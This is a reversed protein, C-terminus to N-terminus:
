QNLQAKIELARDLNGTGKLSELEAQLDEKSSPPTGVKHLGKFTDNRIKEANSQWTTALTKLHDPDTASELIEKPVDPYEKQAEAIARDKMLEAVTGTLQEVQDSGAQHNKDRQSILTKYDEKKLTVNGDDNGNQEPPTEPRTAAGTPTEPQTASGSNPDTGAAGNTPETGSTPELEAM